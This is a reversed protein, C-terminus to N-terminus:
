RPGWLAGDPSGQEALVGYFADLTGQGCSTILSSEIQQRQDKCLPRHVM